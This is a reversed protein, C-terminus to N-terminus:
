CHDIDEVNECREVQTGACSLICNQSSETCEEERGDFVCPFKDIINFYDSCNTIDGVEGCRGVLPTGVCETSLAQSSVKKSPFM